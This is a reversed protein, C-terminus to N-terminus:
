EELLKELKDITLDDEQNFMMMNTYDPYGDESFGQEFIYNMLFQGFRLDPKKEWADVVLSCIERIRDPNRM